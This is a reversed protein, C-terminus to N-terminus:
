SQKVTVPIPQGPPNTATQGMQHLSALFDKFDDGNKQSQRAQLLEGLYTINQLTIAEATLAVLSTRDINADILKGVLFRKSADIAEETARSADDEAGTTKFQSLSQLILGFSEAIEEKMTLLHPTAETATREARARRAPTLKPLLDKM